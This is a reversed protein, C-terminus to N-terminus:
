DRSRQVLICAANTLATLVHQKAMSGKLCVTLAAKLMGCPCGLLHTQGEPAPLMVLMDASKVAEHLCSEVWWAARPLELLLARMRRMVQQM